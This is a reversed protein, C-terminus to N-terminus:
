NSAGVVGRWTTGDCSVAAAENQTPTCVTTSGDSAKITLVEAADASNRIHFSLGKSAAEKPLVVDRGAGGPDLVQYFADDCVLTKTAALAESNATYYRAASPQEGFLRSAIQVLVRTDNTAVRKAVLGIALEPRVVSEVQQDELATGSTAESAGVLDGVEFTGSPCAMEFVGSTAVRIPTTDGDRSRQMAVGAFKSALLSQNAEETAQDTQQSAPRVDDTELYVLDGIEIVTTEDVALVVPRTDGYRWRLTDSM